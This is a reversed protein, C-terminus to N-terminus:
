YHAHKKKYRFETSHPFRSTKMEGMTCLNLTDYKKTTPPVNKMIHPFHAINQKWIVLIYCFNYVHKKSWKQEFKQSLNSNKKPKHHFSLFFFSLSFMHFGKVDDRM